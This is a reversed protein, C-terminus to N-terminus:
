AWTVIFASAQTQLGPTGVTLHSASLPSERSAQGRHALRTYVAACRTLLQGLCPSFHPVLGSAIRQGGCRCQSMRVRTSEYVSLCMCVCSSLEHVWMVILFLVLICPDSLYLSSLSPGLDPFDSSHFLHLKRFRSCVLMCPDGLCAETHMPQEGCDPPPHPWWVTIQLTERWTGKEGSLRM